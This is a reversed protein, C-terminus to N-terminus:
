DDSEDDSLETLDSLDSLESLSDSDSDVEIVKRKMGVRVAKRPSQKMPKVATKGKGGRSPKTTKSEQKAAAELASVFDAYQKVLLLQWSADYDLCKM